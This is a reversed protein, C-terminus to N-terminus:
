LAGCQALHIFFLIPASGTRPQRLQVQPQGLPVATRRKSLRVQQSNGRRRSRRLLLFHRQVAAFSLLVITSVLSRGRGTSCERLSSLVSTRRRGVPAAVQRIENLYLSGPKFSSELSISVRINASVVWTTAAGDSNALYNRTRLKM